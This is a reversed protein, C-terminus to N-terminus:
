TTLSSASKDDPVSGLPQVNRSRAITNFMSISSWTRLFSNSDQETFVFPWVETPVIVLNDSSATATTLRPMGFIPHREELMQYVKIVAIGKTAQEAPALLETIRGCITVGAEPPDTSSGNCTTEATRIMAFVWSGVCCQDNSKTSVLHKVEFWTEEPDECFESANGAKSATSERWVKSPHYRPGKKPVM